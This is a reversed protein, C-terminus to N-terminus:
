AHPRRLMHQGDVFDFRRYFEQADRTCLNLTITRLLHHETIVQMLTHGIGKGREEPAVFVDCLWGFSVYDTVVRAFGCQTDRRFPPGTDIYTRRYVGFCVSNRVQEALQDMTRDKGFYTQQLQSLTWALDLLKVDTSAYHNHPISTM